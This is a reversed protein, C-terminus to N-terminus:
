ISFASIRYSPKVIRFFKSINRFFDEFGFPKPQFNFRMDSIDPWDTQWHSSPQHKLNHKLLRLILIIAAENLEILTSFRTEFFQEFHHRYYQFFTIQQLSFILNALTKAAMWRRLFYWNPMDPQPKGTNQSGSCYSTSSRGTNSYLLPKPYNTQSLDGLKRDLNASVSSLPYDM